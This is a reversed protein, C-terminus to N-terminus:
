KGYVACLIFFCNKMARRKEEITQDDVEESGEKVRELVKGKVRMELSGYWSKGGGARQGQRESRCKEADRGQRKTGREADEKTTLRKAAKADFGGLLSYILWCFSSKKKAHKLQTPM